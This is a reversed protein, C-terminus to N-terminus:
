PTLAASVLLQTYPHQPDDLVQDTLGSEVVQGQQMVLLRHALLRVVGIDHTVLIVSLNFNRVLSRLLDLLRAQVSVDLGGTPEDMLILQPQTVLVRALQLRQQMGGSFTTPLDDMRTPDIEVQQLWHAAEDRIKGYHRVGIDLLREGINAGASVQMRLGDRPNQQVFGWETRMLWRRQHEPLQTIELYKEQRSKYIVNGKDIPINNAIAKLLTSKGSGSEGVIGLVQGPYLDFSIRDCAQIQNYSKSLEQIQLIPKMTIRLEYNLCEKSSNSVAITQIQVFGCGAEKTM